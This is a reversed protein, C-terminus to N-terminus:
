YYISFTTNIIEKKQREGERERGEKGEEKGEEEREEVKIHNYRPINYIGLEYNYGNKMDTGVEAFIIRISIINYYYFM